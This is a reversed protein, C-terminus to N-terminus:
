GTHGFYVDLVCLDPDGCPVGGFGVGEGSGILGTYAGTGHIVHWNFEIGTEFDIHAHLDVFFEGSGDDCTFHKIGQFDFSTDTFRGTRGTADVVTGSSCVTGADVSPGSAVFPGPAGTLDTEAEIVIDITGASGVPLATLMFLAAGLMVIFLRRM